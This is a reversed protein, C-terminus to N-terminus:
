AYIQVTYTDSSIFASHKYIRIHRKMAWTREMHYIDLSAKTKHLEEENLSIALSGFCAIQLSSPTLM